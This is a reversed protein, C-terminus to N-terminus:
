LLRTRKTTSCKIKVVLVVDATRTVSRAAGTVTITYSEPTTGPHGTGVGGGNGSSGSTGGGCAVLLGLLACLIALRGKAKKRRGRSQMVRGWALVLGTLALGFDHWLLHPRGRLNASSSAATTV